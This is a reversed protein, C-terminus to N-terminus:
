LKGMSKASSGYNEVDERCSGFNGREMVGFLSSTNGTHRYNMILLPELLTFSLQLAVYFGPYFVPKRVDM